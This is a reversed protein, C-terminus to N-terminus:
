NKMKVKYKKLYYLKKISDDTLELKFKVQDHLKFIKIPM